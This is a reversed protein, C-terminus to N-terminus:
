GFSIVQELLLFERRKGNRVDSWIIQYTGEEVMPADPFQDPYIVHPPMPGRSDITRTGYVGPLLVGWWAGNPDVVKVALENVGQPSSGPKLMLWISLTREGTVDIQTLFDPHGHRYHEVSRKVLIAFWLVPYAILAAFLASWRSGTFLLTGITATAAAAPITVWGGVEAYAERASLRIIWAIM